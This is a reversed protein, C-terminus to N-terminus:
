YSHNKWREWPKYDFQLYISWHPNCCPSLPPKNCFYFIKYIGLGKYVDKNLLTVFYMISIDPRVPLALLWLKKPNLIISDYNSIHIFISGVKYLIAFSLQMATTPKKYCLGILKSTSVSQAIKRCYSFIVKWAPKLWQLSEKILADFAIFLLM